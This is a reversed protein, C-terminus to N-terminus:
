KHEGTSALQKPKSKDVSRAKRPRVLGQAKRSTYINLAIAALIVVGQVFSQYDTSVDLLILANNIIGVFLAGFVAGPIGGEGGLLNIGGVVMAMLVKGEYGRATGAYASMNLSALVIGTFGATVSSIVYSIVTYKKTNIGLLKAAEPNGGVLYCRRGFTTCGLVLAGVIVAILFWVVTMPIGLLKGSAVQYFIDETNKNYIFSGGTFDLMAGYIAYQTALTVVFAPLGFYAAQVGHFLGLLICLGMAVAFGALLGYTSNGNETLIKLMFCGAMAATSGVCLDIGGVLIVFLMGCAMVGYLSISILISKFNELLFFRPAFFAMIIFIVALVTIRQGWSHGLFKEIKKM